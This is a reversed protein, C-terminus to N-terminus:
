YARSATWLGAPLARSERMWLLQLPPTTRLPARTASTTTRQLIETPTRDNTSPSTTPVQQRNNFSDARRPKAVVQSMLPDISLAKFYAKAYNPDTLSLKSIETVIRKKEYTM